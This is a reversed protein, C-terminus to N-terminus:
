GVWIYIGPSFPWCGHRWRFRLSGKGDIKQPVERKEIGVGSDKNGPTVRKEVAAGGDKKEITEPKVVRVGGAEEVVKAGKAMKVAKDVGKTGIIALAM